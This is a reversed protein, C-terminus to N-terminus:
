TVEKQEKGGAREGWTTKHEPVSYIMETPSGQM